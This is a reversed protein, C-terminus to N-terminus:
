ANTKNSTRRKRTRIFTIGAPICALMALFGWFVGDIAIARPDVRQALRDWWSWDPSIWGPNVYSVWFGFPWGHVYRDHYDGPISFGVNDDLAPVFRSPIALVIFAATLVLLGTLTTKYGKKM